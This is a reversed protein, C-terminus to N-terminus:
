SAAAQFHKPAAEAPEAAPEASPPLIRIRIHGSEDPAAFMQDASEWQNLPRVSAGDDAGLWILGEQAWEVLMKRVQAEPVGYDFALLSTRVHWGDEGLRNLRALFKDKFREHSSM